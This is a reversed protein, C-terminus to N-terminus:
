IWGKRIDAGVVFYCDSQAWQVLVSSKGDVEGFGLSKELPLVLSRKRMIILLIM